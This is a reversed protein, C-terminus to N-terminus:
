GPSHLAPGVPTAIDTGEFWAAPGDGFVSRGGMWTNLFDRGIVFHTGDVWPKSIPSLGALGLYFIELTVVFVAAGAMWNAYFADIPTQGSPTNRTLTGFRPYFLSM